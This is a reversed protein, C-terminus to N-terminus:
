PQSASDSEARIASYLKLAEEEPIDYWEMYADAVAFYPSTRLNVVILKDVRPSVLHIATLSATPVAVVISDPKRKRISDVSAVMSYGSALGDDVLLVTKGAVNSLLGGKTVAAFRETRGELGKKAVKVCEAIEGKTLNLNAVLAENLFVSGDFTVSGFGAEPEWPIPIKRVLVVEFALRLHKAVVYGVPVGGSPIAVVIASEHKDAYQSLKQALLSGADERSNFVGVKDRFRPDDEVRDLV